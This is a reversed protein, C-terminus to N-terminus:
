YLQLGQHLFMILRSTEKKSSIVNKSEENLLRDIYVSLKSIQPINLTAIKEFFSNLRSIYSTGGAFAHYTSM